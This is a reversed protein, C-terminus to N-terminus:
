IQRALIFSELSLMCITGCTVKHNAVCLSLFYSIDFKITAVRDITAHDVANSAGFLEVHHAARLSIKHVWELPYFAGSAAM